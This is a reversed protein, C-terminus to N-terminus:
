MSTLYAIFLVSVPQAAPFQIYAYFFLCLKLESALNYPFVLIDAASTVQLCAKVAEILTPL